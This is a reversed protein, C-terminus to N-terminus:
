TPEFRWKFYAITGALAILTMTPVLTFGLLGPEISPHVGSLSMAYYYLVEYFKMAVSLRLLGSGLGPSLTALLMWVINYAFYFTIGLISATGSTRSSLAIGLFVIGYFFAQVLYGTFVVLLGLPDRTVVPALIVGAVALPVSLLILSPVLVRSTVLALALGGRSLPYSLYVEMIGEGVLSAVGAASRLALYLAVTFLTPELILRALLYSSTAPQISGLIAGLTAIVLVMLDFGPPRLSDLSDLVILDVLRGRSPM